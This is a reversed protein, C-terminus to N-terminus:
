RQVLPDAEKVRALWGAFALSTTAGAENSLRSTQGDITAHNSHVPHFVASINLKTRAALQTSRSAAPSQGPADRSRPVATLNLIQFLSVVPKNKKLIIKTSSVHSADNKNVSM